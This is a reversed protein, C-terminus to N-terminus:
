RKRHKIEKCSVSLKAFHGFSFGNIMFIDGDFGIRTPKPM